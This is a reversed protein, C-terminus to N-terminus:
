FETRSILYSIRMSNNGFNKVNCIPWPKHTLINYLITSIALHHEGVRRTKDVDPETYTVRVTTKDEAKAKDDITLLGPHGSRLFGSREAM